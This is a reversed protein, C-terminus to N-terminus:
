GDTLGVATGFITDREGVVDAGVIDPKAATLRIVFIIVLLVVKETTITMTDDTIIKHIAEQKYM